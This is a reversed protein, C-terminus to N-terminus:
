CQGLGLLGWVSRSGLGQRRSRGRPRGGRHVIPSRRGGMRRILYAGRLCAGRGNDWAADGRMHGLVVNFIGLTGTVQWAEGRAVRHGGEPDRRRRSVLIWSGPVRAEGHYPVVNFMGSTGLVEWSRDGFTVCLLCSGRQRGAPVKRSVKKVQRMPGWISCPGRVVRCM